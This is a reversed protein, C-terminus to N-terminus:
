LIVYEQVILFTGKCNESGMTIEEKQKVEKELKAIQQSKEELVEKIEALEETQANTLTELKEQLEEFQQKLSANTVELSIKRESILTIWVNPPHFM